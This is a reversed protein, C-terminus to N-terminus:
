EGYNYLRIPTLIQINEPDDNKIMFLRTPASFVFTVTKSDLAKVAEIAYEVNFVIEFIDQDDPLTYSVKKIIEESNGYNTSKSFMTVGNDRNITIRVKCNNDEAAAIIRVRDAALLFEDSDVTLSYPFSPPIMQEVVPFSGNYLTTSLIVDDSKFIAKQNDFYITCLGLDSIKSVMELAKCPCIFSFDANQDAVPIDLRAMRYSDTALFYLKNNKAFVNIGYYYTKPGKKAAAFATANYLKKLDSFLITFGSNNEPINFDVDPYEAADKTILNYNTIDDSINLYNTDILTLTIINGSLKSVIDLFYSAPIQIEGPESNIIVDNNDKDKKSIKYQTSINSDTGTIIVNDETIKLLFNMLLNDVSKSPIIQNVYNLAKLFNERKITLKM